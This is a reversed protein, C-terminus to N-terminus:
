TAFVCGTLSYMIWSDVTYIKASNTESKQTIWLWYHLINKVGLVYTPMTVARYWDTAAHRVYM